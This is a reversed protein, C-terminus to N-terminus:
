KVIVVKGIGKERGSDEYAVIFYVGTGLRNGNYDYGDWNTRGGQASIENVVVGDVGLIKIRTADSLGEIVIQNHRNYQFPNPFVKLEDMETVPAKPIDQFSVLGLDTAIFVEGTQNNISISEINDSILPSNESTFRKEIRSGEENLLDKIKAVEGNKIPMM